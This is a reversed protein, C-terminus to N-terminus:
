LTSIEITLEDSYCGARAGEVAGLTLTLGFAQGAYTRPPDVDRTAMRSLDLVTGEFAVQYALAADDGAGELKLLGRNSSSFTLRAASNTRTQVFLQQAKGTQAEGFDVVSVSLGSGFAGHSGSLNLQARPLATVDIVVPTRDYATAAGPQRLELTLPQAYLGAQVVADEVVVVDFVVDTTEDAPVELRFVSPSAARAVASNPRIELTLGTGGVRTQVLAVGPIDVLALEAACTESGPNRVKFALRAPATAPLFPDYDLRVAQPAQSLQLTCEAAQAQTAFAGGLVASAALGIARNRVSMSSASM